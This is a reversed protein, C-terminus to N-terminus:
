ARVGPQARDALRRVILVALFPLLAYWLIPRSLSISEGRVVLCEGGEDVRRVDGLNSAVSEDRGIWM